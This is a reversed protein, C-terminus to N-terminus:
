ARLWLLVFFAVVSCATATLAFIHGGSLHAPPGEPVPVYPDPRVRALTQLFSAVEVAATQSNTGCRFAGAQTTVEVISGTYANNTHRHTVEAVVPRELRIVEIYFPSVNWYATEDVLQFTGIARPVVGSIVDMMGLLLSAASLGFAVAATMWWGDISFLGLGAVGFSVALLLGGPLAALPHRGVYVGGRMALRRDHCTTLYAHTEDPVRGFWHRTVPAREGTSM